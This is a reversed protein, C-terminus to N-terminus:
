LLCRARMQKKSQSNQASLRYKEYVSYRATITCIILGAKGDVFGLKFFYDRIFRWAARCFAGVTTYCKGADKAEEASLRAFKLVQRKHEEVTYFSYHLLDGHLKKVRFNEPVQLTEHVKRGTWHVFRRDFIRIKVDPYWGGHRIWRGCYNMLRNMEFVRNDIAQSKVALISNELEASIAEDADISLILDNTALSNAYNKTDIYGQWERQFFRVPFRACIEATADTSFSDLVVIEDAIRQVSKLCREINREENLTIIM